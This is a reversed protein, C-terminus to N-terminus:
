HCRKCADFGCAKATDITTYIPNEMNSCSSNSHYKKGGNRPVWCPGGTTPGMQLVASASPSETGNAVNSSDVQAPAQQVVAANVAEQEAAALEAARQAAAAEEEEIKKAAAVKEEEAKKAAAAKEAEAKKAAAIKEEEAKKAAAAKEAEAKKAAAVREEEARKEELRKKEEAAKKDEEAKKAKAAAREEEIKQKKEANEDEESNDYIEGISREVNSASTDNVVFISEESEMVTSINNEVQNDSSGSAIGIVLLGGLVGATIKAWKPIKNWLNNKSTNGSNRSQNPNAKREPRQYYTPKSMNGKSGSKTSDSAKRMQDHNKDSGPRQYYISQSM